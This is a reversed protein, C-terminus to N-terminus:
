SWQVTPFIPPINLVASGGTAFLTLQTAFDQCMTEHSPGVSTPIYLGAPPTSSVAPGPVLMGTALVSFFANVAGPFVAGSIHMGVAAAKFASKAAAVSTSVPVIALFGVELADAWGDIARQKATEVDPVDGLYGSYEPDCFKQLETKIGNTDIM